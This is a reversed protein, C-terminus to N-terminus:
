RRAVSRDKRCDYVWVSGNTAVAGGYDDGLVVFDIEPQSCLRRFEDATPPPRDILDGLAEGGLETRRGYERRLRDIEFPLVVRARREREAATPRYFLSVSLQQRHYYGNVGLRHWLDSVRPGPWYVTPTRAPDRYRDLVARVFRLDDGRPDFARAVPGVTQVAFWGGTVAVGVAAVAWPQLLRGRAFRGAVVALVVALGGVALPGAVILTYLVLHPLGLWQYVGGDALTRIYGGTFMTPWVVAWGAAGVIVGDVAAARGTGGGMRVAMVGLAVAALLILWCAPQTYGASPTLGVVLGAAALRRVGGGAWLRGALYLGAPIRVVELPWAGRAPQVQFGLAWGGHATAIGGAVGGLAVAVAAWRFRDGAPGAAGGALLVCAAGFLIRFQDFPWWRSPDLHVSHDLVQTRWEPDLTTGTLALGVWGALGAVAAGILVARRGPTTAWALGLMGVQVGVAPAAVLPHVLGAALTLGAAAAWRGAVARELALVAFATAPVRATLFNEGVGFAGTVGWWGPLVAVAILGAAAAPTPGFLRLVLRQVAWLRVATFGVYAALFVPEVGAWGVPVALLRPFVTYDSQSGYRFFLDDSFKGTGAQVV